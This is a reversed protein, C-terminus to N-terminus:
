REEGFLIKIKMKDYQEKLVMDVENSNKANILGRTVDPDRLYIYFFENLCNEKAVKITDEINEWIMAGIKLKNESISKEKSM